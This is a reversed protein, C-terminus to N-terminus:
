RLDQFRSTTALQRQVALDTRSASTAAKCDIVKYAMEAYYAGAALLIVTAWALFVHKTEIRKEKWYDESAM